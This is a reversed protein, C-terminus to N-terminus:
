EANGERLSSRELAWVQMFHVGFEDKVRGMIYDAGIELIELGAPTEVFGLSRGEPDFVTWLPASSGEGPVEYEEVWLHDLADAMVAGFAPLHDAVPVSQYHRRLEAREEATEGPARAVRAEVYADVQTPTPTRRGHDRRVVRALTGDAAFARIEYRDTASVVLLDGWPTVVLSRGFIAPPDRNIPELLYRQFRLHAADRYLRLVRGFSGQSDLVTLRGNGRSWAVISDGRFPEVQYLDTFQGLGWGQGGWTALHIGSSDFVRLESTGRDAVVIRGDRLITADTADTFLAADEGDNGGISVIPRPGIRWDLRSGDPPRANEIIRARNSGTSPFRTPHAVAASVGAAGVAALVAGTAITSPRPRHPKLISAIRRELRPGTYRVMPLSLASTGPSMGGAAVALLHEAYQSPRTGLALVKEDCAEERASAAFRAAAWALPHFWYLALAARLMLQRLADRHRVHILEHTLVALRRERSWAKASEPLVIAPRRFGGTMPTNAQTSLYLPVDGHINLHTRVLTVQRLWAPERVPEAQRVLRGFRLMGVLLATLATACGLGWLLFSLPVQRSPLRPAEAHAPTSTPSASRPTPPPPPLEEAPDRAVPPPPTPTPPQLKPTSATPSPLLPVEWAPGYLSLAPLGLLLAFTTTWLLHRVRAPRRRVLWALTLAVALLVTARAALELLGHSDPLAFM